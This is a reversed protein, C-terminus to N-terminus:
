AKFRRRVSGMVGLAGTSFLLLSGPEPVVTSGAADSATLSGTLLDNFSDNGAAYNKTYSSGITCATQGDPTADYVGTCIPGGDYGALTGPPLVISIQAGPPPGEAFQDGQDSAIQIYYNPSFLGAYQIDSLSTFTNTQGNVDLTIDLATINGSSDITFSGTLSANDVTTVDSFTLLTDAHAAVGGCLLLVTSLFISRRMSLERGHDESTGAETPWIHLQRILQNQRRILSM